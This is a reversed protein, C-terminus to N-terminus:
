AVRIVSTLLLSAAEQSGRSSSESLIGLGAVIVSSEHRRLTLIVDINGISGVDMTHVAGLGYTIAKIQSEVCVWVSLSAELNLNLLLM